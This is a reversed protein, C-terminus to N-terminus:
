RRRHREPELDITVLSGPLVERYAGNVDREEFAGAQGCTRRPM